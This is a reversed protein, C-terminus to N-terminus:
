NRHTPLEVDASVIAGHGKRYHSRLRLWIKRIFFIVVLLGIAMIGLGMVLEPLGRLFFLTQDYAFGLLYSLPIFLAVLSAKRM